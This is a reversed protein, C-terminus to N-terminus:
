RRYPALTPSIAKAKEPRVHYLAPVHDIQPQNGNSGTNIEASKIDDFAICEVVVDLREEIDSTLKTFEAEWQGSAKRTSGVLECWGLWWAKPAVIQIIPPKKGIKTGFRKKAEEAICEQNAEVIAAYRLGQMLAVMPSEGRGRKPKVKLEIVALRDQDSVGLVDIKGVGKDSQCAQLPVQYDLMRLGGGGPRPWFIDKRWLAIALREEFRNSDGSKTLCGDHGEVFYTKDRTWRQPASHKLVEYKDCLTGCDIGRIKDALGTTPWDADFLFGFEEKSFKSM